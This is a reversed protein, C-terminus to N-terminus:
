VRWWLLPSAFWVSLFSGLNRLSGNLSARRRWGVEGKRRNKAIFPICNGRLEPDGCCGEPEIIERTKARRRRPCMRREEVVLTRIFFLNPMLVQLAGRIVTLGGQRSVFIACLM